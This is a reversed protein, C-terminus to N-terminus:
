HNKSAITEPTSSEKTPEDLECMGKMLSKRSKQVEAEACILSVSLGQSQYISLHLFDFSSLLIEGSDLHCIHIYIYSLYIYIYRRKYRESKYDANDFISQRLGM